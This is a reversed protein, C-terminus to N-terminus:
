KNIFHINSVNKLGTTLETMEESFSSKFAAWNRTGIKDAMVIKIAMENNRKELGSVATLYKTRM